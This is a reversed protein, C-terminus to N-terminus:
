YVLVPRSEILAELKSQLHSIGSDKKWLQSLFVRILFEVTGKLNQGKIKMKTIIVIIIIIIIIIMIVIIIKQNQSLVDDKMKMLLSYNFKSDENEDCPMRQIMTLFCVALMPVVAIPTM